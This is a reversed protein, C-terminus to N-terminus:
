RMWGAALIRTVLNLAGPKCDNNKCLASDHAGGLKLDAAISAGSLDLGVLGAGSLDLSGGIHALGMDVQDAFHSDPMDTNGGVQLFSAAM